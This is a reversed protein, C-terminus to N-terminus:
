PALRSRSRGRFTLWGVGLLEAAPGNEARPSHSGDANVIALVRAPPVREQPPGPPDSRPVRAAPPAPSRYSPEAQDRQRPPRSGAPQGGPLSQTLSPAPTKKAADTGTATGRRDRLAAQGAPRQGLSPTRAGHHRDAQGNAPRARTAPGAPQPRKRCAATTRPPHHATAPDPTPRLEPTRPAAARRRRYQWARRRAHAKQVDPGGRHAAPGAAAPAEPPPLAATARSRRRRPGRHAPRGM